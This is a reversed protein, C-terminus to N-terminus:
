KQLLVDLSSMGRCILSTYDWRYKKLMPHAVANKAKQQSRDHEPCWQSLPGNPASIKSRLSLWSNNQMSRWCDRRTFDRMFVTPRHSCGAKVRLRSSRNKQSYYAWKKARLCGASRLSDRQNIHCLPDTRSGSRIGSSMSQLLRRLTGEWRAWRAISSYCTSTM